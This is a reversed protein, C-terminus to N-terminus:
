IDILDSTVQHQSFKRFRQERQYSNSLNIACECIRYRVKEIMSYNPSFRVYRDFAISAENYEEMQFMSEAMYYQSENAIKSGPDAMIIYDFDDKARSYKTKNFYKLAKEFRPYLDEELHANKKGCGLLLVM